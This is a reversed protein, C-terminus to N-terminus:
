KFLALLKEWLSPKDFIEKKYVKNIDANVEVAKLHKSLRENAKKLHIPKFDTRM